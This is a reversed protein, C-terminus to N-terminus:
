VLMRPEMPHRYDRPVPALLEVLEEVGHVVEHFRSAGELLGLLDGSADTLAGAAEEMSHPCELPAPPLQEQPAVAWTEVPGRGRPRGGPLLVCRGNPPLQERPAAVLPEVAEEVGHFAELAHDEEEDEDEKEEEENGHVGESADHNGEEDEEEEEEEEKPPDPHPLLEPQLPYSEM